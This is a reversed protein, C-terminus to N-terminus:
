RISVKCITLVKPITCLITLSASGLAAELCLLSCNKYNYKIAPYILMGNEIVKDFNRRQEHIVAM